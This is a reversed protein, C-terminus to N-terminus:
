LTVTQPYNTNYCMLSVQFQHYLQYLIRAIDKYIHLNTHIHSFEELVALGIKIIKKNEM